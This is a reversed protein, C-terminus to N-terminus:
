RKVKNRLLELTVHLPQDLLEDSRPEIPEIRPGPEFPQSSSPTPNYTPAVSMTPLDYVPATTPAVPQLAPPPADFGAPPMMQRPPMAGFSPGPVTPLSPALPRPTPYSSPADAFTQQPAVFPSPEAAIPPQPAPVPPVAAVPPRPATAPSPVAGGRAATSRRAHLGRELRVLLDELRARDLGALGPDPAPRQPKQTTVPRVVPPASPEFAPPHAYTPAPPEFAPPQPYSPASREIAPPQAYGAALPVNSPPQAYLPATQEVAPPQMAPQIEPPEFAAPPAVRAAPLEFVPPPAAPPVPPEFSLSPPASPEITAPVPIQFPALDPPPAPSTFLPPPEPAGLQLESAYPRSQLPQPAQDFPNPQVPPQQLPPTPANLLEDVDATLPSPTDFQSSSGDPRVGPTPLWAPKPLPEAAPAVAPAPDVSAPLASAGLINGSAPEVGLRQFPDSAFGSQNTTAPPVGPEAGAFGPLIHNIPPLLQDIGPMAAPQLGQPLPPNPPDGIDNRASLPRRADGHSQSAWDGTPLSVPALLDLPDTPRFANSESDEYDDERERILTRMGARGFLLWDILVWGIGATLTGALVALVTKDYPMIPPEAQTMLKSLRSATTITELLHTPMGLVVFGAAIGLLLALMAGMVLSSRRRTEKQVMPVGM